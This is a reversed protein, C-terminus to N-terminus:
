SRQEYAEEIISIIKEAGDILPDTFDEHLLKGAIRLLSLRNVTFEYANFLLLGGYERRSMQRLPASVPLLLSKHCDILELIEERSLRQAEYILLEILDHEPTQWAALEFDYLLARSGFFFINRLSFDNHTFSLHNKYRAARKDIEDLFRDIKELRERGFRRRNEEEDAHFLLKLCRKSKKYKSPTCMSLGLSRAADVDNYYFKHFASVAGLAQKLEALSAREREGNKYYKLILSYERRRPEYYSGYCLIIHRRLPRDLEKYLTVERKASHRYGLIETHFAMSLKLRLSEGGILRVGNRIIDSSKVKRVCLMSSGDEFRLKLLDIGNDGLAIRNNISSIGCLPEEEVHTIRKDFMPQLRSIM